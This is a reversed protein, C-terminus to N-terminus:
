PVSDNPSPPAIIPINSIPSANSGVVNAAPAQSRHKRASGIAHITRTEARSRRVLLVSGMQADVVSFLVQGAVTEASSVILAAAALSLLVRDYSGTLLTIVAFAYLAAGAVKSSFLHLNPLRRFKLLGVTVSVLYISFTGAVLSTNNPVIEPHLLGIWAMASLLLLTDAILDLRAGAPSTEGLRRAVFGDLFDTLGAIILGLGVLRGHGLLAQWWIVPLVLLRVGTIADAVRWGTGDVLSTQRASAITSGHLPQAGVGDLLRILLQGANAPDDRLDRLKRGQQRLELVLGADRLVLRFSGAGAGLITIALLLSAVGRTSGLQLEELRHRAEIAHTDLELTRELAQDIEGGVPGALEDLQTPLQALLTDLVPVM